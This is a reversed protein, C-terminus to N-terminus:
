VFKLDFIDWPVETLYPLNSKYKLATKSKSKDMVFPM